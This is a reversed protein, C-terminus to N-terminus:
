NQFHAYKKKKAKEEIKEKQFIIQLIQFLNM